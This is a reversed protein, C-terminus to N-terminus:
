KNYKKWITGITKQEITRDGVLGPNQVLNSNVIMEKHGSAFLRPPYRDSDLRKKVIFTNTTSGDVSEMRYCSISINILKKGAVCTSTAIDRLTEIRREQKVIERLGDQTKHKNPTKAVTANEWTEGCNAIHSRVRVKNLADYAATRTRLIRQLAELMIQCVVWSVPYNAVSLDGIQQVFKGSNPHCCKKLMDPLWMTTSYQGDVTCKAKEDIFEMKTGPVIYEKTSVLPLMFRPRSRSICTPIM